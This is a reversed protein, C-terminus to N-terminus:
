EERPGTVCVKKTYLNFNFDLMESTTTFGDALLPGTFFELSVLSSLQKVCARYFRSFLRCKANYKLPNVLITLITPYIKFSDPSRSFHVM